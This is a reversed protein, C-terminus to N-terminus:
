TQDRFLVILRMNLIKMSLYLLEIGIGHIGVINRFYNESSSFGFKKEYASNLGILRGLHRGCVSDLWHCPLSISEPEQTKTEVKIQM